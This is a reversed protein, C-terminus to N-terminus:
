KTVSGWKPDTLEYDVLRRGDSLLYGRMSYSAKCKPCITSGDNYLEGTNIRGRCQPTFCGGRLSVLDELFVTMSLSYEIENERAIDLKANADKIRSEENNKM